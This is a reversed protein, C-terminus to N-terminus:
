LGKSGLYARAKIERARMTKLDLGQAKARQRPDLHQPREWDFDGRRIVEPDGARYAYALTDLARTISRLESEGRGAEDTIGDYAHFLDGYAITRALLIRDYQAACAPCPGTLAHQSGTITSM